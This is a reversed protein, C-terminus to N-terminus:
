CFWHWALTRLLVDLHCFTSVLLTYLSGLLLLWAHLFLCNLRTSLEVTSGREIVYFWLRLCVESKLLALLSAPHPSTLRPLVPNLKWRQEKTASHSQSLQYLESLRVQAEYLEDAARPLSDVYFFGGSM